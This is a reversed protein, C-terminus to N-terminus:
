KEMVVVFEQELMLSHEYLKQIFERGWKAYYYSLNENREQL